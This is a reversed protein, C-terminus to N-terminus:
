YVEIKYKKDWGRLASGRMYVKQVTFNSGKLKILIVIKIKKLYVTTIYVPDGGKLDECAPIREGWGRM